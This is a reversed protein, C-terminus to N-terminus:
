KGSIKQKPENKSPPPFNSKSAPMQNPSKAFPASPPNATNQVLKPKIIQGAGIIM